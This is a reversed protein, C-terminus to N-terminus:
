TWMTYSLSYLYVMQPHTLQSHAVVVSCPIIYSKTGGYSGERVSRGGREGIEGERVSGGGREGM